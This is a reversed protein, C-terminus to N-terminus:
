RKCGLTKRAISAKEIGSLRNSFQQIERIANNGRVELFTGEFSYHDFGLRKAYLIIVGSLTPRNCAFVSSIIECSELEEIGALLISTAQFTKGNVEVVYCGRHSGGNVKIPVLYRQPLNDRELLVIQGEEVEASSDVVKNAAEIVQKKAAADKVLTLHFPAANANSVFFAFFAFFAFFILTQRNKLSLAKMPM